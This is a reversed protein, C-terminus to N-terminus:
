IVLESNKTSDLDIEATIMINGRYAEEYENVMKKNELLEKVGDSVGSFGVSRKKWPISCAAALTIGDREAFIMPVGKYTGVWGNNGDGNNKIRPSLFMYLHYQHISEQLPKFTVCQLLTNRLPDTIVEKEIVFKEEKCKNRMSYAPIGEDVMKIEHDTNRREEALFNKGDTVIFGIEDVCVIDESPFYVENIIGHSLTFSVNSAANLAKGIGSKAGSSSWHPKEGPQGPAEKSSEAM